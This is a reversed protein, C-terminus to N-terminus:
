ECILYRRTNARCIRGRKSSKAFWLFELITKRNYCAQLAAVVTFLVFYLMQNQVFYACFMYLGSVARPFAADKASPQRAIKSLIEVLSQVKKSGRSISFAAFHEAFNEKPAGCARKKRRRCPKKTNKSPHTKQETILYFLNMGAFFTRMAADPLPDPSNRGRADEKKKRVAPAGPTEM